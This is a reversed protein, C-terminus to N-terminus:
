VAWKERHCETHKVVSFVSRYWHNLTPLIAATLPRLDTWSWIRSCVKPVFHTLHVGYLFILQHFLISAALWVVLVKFFWHWQFLGFAVIMSSSSCVCACVRVNGPLEQCHDPHTQQDGALEMHSLYARSVVRSVGNVGAASCYVSLISLLFAQLPISLM